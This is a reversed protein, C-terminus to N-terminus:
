VGEGVPVIPLRRVRPRLPAVTAISEGRAQAARQAEVLTALEDAPIGLAPALRKIGTASPLATGNCYDRLTTSGILLVAAAEVETEHEARFAGMLAAFSPAKAAATVTLEPLTIGPVDALTGQQAPETTTPNM